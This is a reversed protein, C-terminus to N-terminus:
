ECEGPGGSPNECPRDQPNPPWLDQEMPEIFPRNQRHVETNSGEDVQWTQRLSCFM